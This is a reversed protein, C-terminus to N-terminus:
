VGMMMDQIIESYYIASQLLRRWEGTVDILMLKLFLKGLTGFIVLYEGQKGFNKVM